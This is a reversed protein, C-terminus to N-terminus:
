LDHERSEETNETETQERLTVIFKNVVISLVKDSPDMFGRQMWKPITVRAHAFGLKQLIYDVGVPDIQKSAWHLLRITPELQWTKCEYERWDQVLVTVPEKIKHREEEFASQSELSANITLSSSGTLSSRKGSLSNNGKDKEKIYSMVLDHIFLLVEADMAVYIHDEFETVFSCEVIPKPDKELPVQETQHHKTILKLQMSPLACVMESEHNYETKRVKRYDAPSESGLRKERPMPILEKLETSSFAYQFWQSVCTFAPPMAHGRTIKLVHAMSKDQHTAYDHGVYFTLDQVVHTAKDETKQAETTFSIYPENLTFIAWSKSKFNVGQFCGLTMNKGQLTLTGGLIMGDKPLMVPLMSFHSGTINELAKQWHRHHGLESVLSVQEASKHKDPLRHKVPVSGMGGLARKSSTFQQAFFEELKSSLRILDPTTSRSILMHFKDWKLDGHAFLLAARTTALPADKDQGKDIKWEDKLSLSLNSLQTMFISSGMYDIRNDAAVILMWAEHIPDMGIKPDECCKFNTSIEQLDVTGGVVGGKSDFHSGGLGVSICLDKHGTSDISLRGESQITHTNWNTNGMVNSMNVNVDLQKLNVSYLVLTQWGISKREGSTRSTQSTQQQSNRRALSIASKVNTQSGPTALGSPTHQTGSTTIPAGSHVDQPIHYADIPSQPASGGRKHTLRHALEHKLDSSIQIKHKDGSSGRRHHGQINHDNYSNAYLTPSSTCPSTFPIFLLSTDIGGLSSANSSLSSSDENEVTLSEDGLFLRRALNRRYWAKPFSLIESLRRMDYKFAATGIECVTSFRVVNCKESRSKESKFELRRSRSINLNVFELNLSLSDKRCIDTSAQEEISGLTRPSVQSIGKRQGGGYPHFIYLSFDSLCGTVSLGGGSMSTNLDSNVSASRIRVEKSGSVTSEKVVKKSFKAKLTPTGDGETSNADIDSRKTSFVFELSPVKFLCEVKSLPLCNFRISSPKVQLFVIVDVPFSGFMPNSISMSSSNLDIDDKDPTTQEKKAVSALSFPIPELAQELYDLLCPSILMEEPLSQLSLWAYLNAKKLSQRARSYSGGMLDEKKLCIDPIDTTELTNPPTIANETKSNYHLKVDVGPLFFVTNETVPLPPAQFKKVGPIIVASEQKKFKLDDTTSPTKERKLRKNEDDKSEKPHLICKGSDIVVKVDLEFDINPEVISKSSSSGISPNSLNHKDNGRLKVGDVCDKNFRKTNDDSSFTDNDTQSSSSSAPSFSELHQIKHYTWSGSSEGVQRPMHEPSDDPSSTPTYMTAVTEGFQVKSNSLVQVIDSQSSGITSNNGSKLADTNTSEKSKDTAMGGYSKSRSHLSGIGLKDKIVSAKEGQRKIKNLVEKRFENFIIGKLEDLKKTEVEIRKSSVGLVRLDQVIKAQDNMAKELLRARKKPDLSTDFVFKPLFEVLSPRRVFVEMNSDPIDELSVDLPEETQELLLEENEVGTLSTLTQGFASLRKGLNTDLHVGIGMMEWKVNLIWKANSNTDSVQPNITRSCVEYTGEPVVCANMVYTDDFSLKTDGFSPKWDDLSTEFDEAIRLCFGTFKGKSVLLGSSCACIQTNEITLVVAAGPEIDTVCSPVLSNFPAIPLCVGTDDVTLQLFLTSLAQSHSYSLQPLRDFVQRTADQVENNLAHRQETWYEYANKYNLWVLVAKDFALPQALVIPRTLNILLAEQDRDVGPIMEDQLANRIAIKTKFFAMTQFEPDAEEFLPNKILQGLSLNLDVQAKIFVKQSDDFANSHESENAAMQIRNSIEVAIAETELRVASATPTTATIQIGKLRFHVSYLLQDKHSTQQIGQEAWLPVPNDGGSVKQLLENVEKMFVKQVFVLHNLLDTTLSHEFMGVDAVANLYNGAKLIYEETLTESVPANDNFHRYDAYVHVAPLDISSSSPISSEMTKVKSKFSLAHNPLDLTFKAKKLTIGNISIPGTKYQARLSPLLSAGITIGKLVAKLHIHINSGKSRNTGEDARPITSAQSQETSGKSDKSDVTSYDVDLVRSSRPLSKRFEMLTSSLQTSGRTLMGHLVVPHHPINVMIDGISVIASNHGKGRRKVNTHLAQSQSVNVTVVTQSNSGELLELMAHGVHATYSNESSKRQLFGKVKQKVATTAHVNHMQAELKLGSLVALIKVKHVKAVGFVILPISDGIYISQKFRTRSFTSKALPTNEYEGGSGTATGIFAEEEAATDIRTKVSGSPTGTNAKVSPEEEIIPLRQRNSKHEVTKTEPMTSYLELLHYLTKWCKPTGERIEDIITKEVVAPSSTDPMSKDRLLEINLSTPPIVHKCQSYQSMAPCLLESEHSIVSPLRDLSDQGIDFRSKKIDESVKVNSRKLSSTFSPKVPLISVLSAVNDSPVSAVNSTMSQIGAHSLASMAQSTKSMMKGCSMAPMVRTKEGLPHKVTALSPVSEVYKSNFDTRSLDSHVTEASSSSGKSDQKRHTRIWDVSSHSQKLELRTDNVSGIMTVFQHILRLLPMDVHQTILQCNVFLNVQLTAPKAELKHMAFKFPVKDFKNDETDKKDFDIVDQMSVKMSFMECQFASSNASAEIINGRKGKVKGKVKTRLSDCIAIKLVNLNGQLSLHGGFNKLMATPRVNEVHLGISLLFPKFLNQADALQMISTGLTFYETNVDMHSDEQGLGRGFAELFSDQRRVTSPQEEELSHPEFMNSQQMSMWRYLNDVKSRLMQQANGKFPSTPPSAAVPPEAGLVSASHISFTSDNRLLNIMHPNTDHVPSEFAKHVQLNKKKKQLEIASLTGTVDPLVADKRIDVDREQLGPKLKNLSGASEFKQETREDILLAEDGPNIPVGKCHEDEDESHDDADVENDENDGYNDRDPHPAALSVTYPTRNRTKFNMHSIQPMYLTNKWQRTLALIGKQITILQPIIDSGVSQEVPETGVTHIYKRLVTLLQCSADEQLTRSFNTIRSFKSKYPMHINQHDLAETMVCAIVLNTRHTLEQALTRAATMLRDFPSMWANISPTATSLLNWDYKTFDVKKKLPLPSPAAFNFWVTKLQLIGSSADGVLDSKCAIGSTSPISVVSDWSHVSNTSKHVNMSKKLTLDEILENKEILGKTSTQSQSSSPSPENSITKTGSNDGEMEIKFKTHEEMVTKGLNDQLNEEKYGLRRVATICIDELGCEFMIYGLCPVNDLVAKSSQHVPTESKERNLSKQRSIKPQPAADFPNEDLNAAGKSSMSARHFKNWGTDTGLQKSTTFTRQVNQDKESRASLSRKVKVSTTHRRSIPSFLTTADHEFTFMVKSKHEPIATLVIGNSLNGDRLLRRLQLHIAKINITGVDEEKLIEPHDDKDAESNDTKSANSYVPSSNLLNPLVSKLTKCSHSNSLLQCRVDEISMGVLSVCTIEQINDLTSFSILEEVMGAQLTSINIKPISILAQYSSTKIETQKPRSETSSFRQALVDYDPSDTELSEEVKKLRNQSKLRDLCRFHLGDLIASPHLSSLTPTVAECLRQFSELLLPTVLIDLSGKLKVTATTRSANELVTGDTTDLLPEEVNDWSENEDQKEKPLHEKNKMVCTHLGQKIKTFHPRCSHSKGLCLSQSASSISMYSPETALSHYPAPFPVPSMWNSCNLLTMHSSYCPLLVPSKTIANQVQSHLNVMSFDDAIEQPDTDASMFSMSSQSSVSFRETDQVAANEYSLESEYNIESKSSVCEVTAPMIGHSSPRKLSLFTADASIADEEASFYMESDLSVHSIQRGSEGRTSGRKVMISSPSDCRLKSNVLPPSSSSSMSVSHVSKGKLEEEFPHTNGKLISSDSSKLSVTSEVMVFPNVATSDDNVATDSTVNTTNLTPSVNLKTVPRTPPDLTPLLSELISCTKYAEGDTLTEEIVTINSGVVDPTALDSMYGRTFTFEKNPSLFGTTPRTDFVLKNKHLLSQGFGPDMGEPSIKCIATPGMNHAKHPNFFGMGNKNNGFFACGGLCGCKGIVLNAVKLVDGPWLFWLRKSLADHSSLFDHQIGHLEKYPLAMAAEAKVPGLLVGGSEIWVEPQTTNHRIPATSIYQKISINEILCTIGESTNEGHLNCISLRIPFVQMNLASGSEVLYINISDVSARMMKYKMDETTPCPINIMDTLKRCTQQPVLHQCIQYTVTRTCCNEADEILMIFTQAFEVINQIQPSTLRGSLDGVIAEVLWAYEITESDLPLGQKSFMAHGRIQLGSLAVYGEKLHYQDLDREFNDRAILVTPSILVQLKTEKFQKMMEFGLREVYVTPCPVNEQNCNKVLHAQIDLLTASLNVSLQRYKRGDFKGRSVEKNTQREQVDDIDKLEPMASPSSYFDKYKQYEGFYCDKVHLLSRLLSGYLCLVSPAVELEVSILDAELSSADFNEPVTGYKKKMYKLHIFELPTDLNEAPSIIDEMPVIMHHDDIELLPPMPHYKFTITLSVNYTMWCDIWGASKLTIGRWQKHIGDGFPKELINGDRDVIRMNESLAMIVHRSTNSEPLLLRCYITEVKFIFELQTTVPLFDTYPLQMSLELMEGCFALHANEPNQSSTDIWNYENCVTVLEFKKILIHVNYSFPIFHVIDPITKSSWDEMLDSFFYKHEFLLFLTAKCATFTCTWEQQDNWQLHYFSTINFELTECKLFSRFQMSTSIDMFLLQGKIVSSYGNEEIIWPISAEIYSAPGMHMHIAQTESNKTFLIDTTAEAIINLRFEFTKFQRRDGAKAEKSAITCQYDSPYFFKWLFERQRDAWPGYNFDTNKGCEIAVGISPYTRRVVTEGDALQVMEPEYPVLGPEDMYYHAKIETSQMLVFGEGMMRPPEDLQEKTYKDSPVFMVRMSDCEVKVDHMFQDFPTSATTTTYIVHSDDLHIILTNPVLHNGFVFRATTIDLKIVPVLDRWRVNKKALDVSDKKVPDEKYEAKEDNEDGGLDCSLGFLKELHSYTVTRNYIHVVFGDIFVYLRTEAHSMDEGHERYVYPRWWKFIAIGYDIRVSFDETIYDVARFMLKGSLVSLSVSGINIQGYTVFKNIIFTAILGLVRSNYYALYVTWIIGAALSIFFWYLNSKPIEGVIQQILDTNNTVETM